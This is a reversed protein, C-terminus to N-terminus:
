RSRVDRTRAAAVGAGTQDYEQRKAADKLIEYANGVETFEDHLDLNKDPHTAMARERYAKKIDADSADRSVGLAKYPDLGGSSFGRRAGTFLPLVGFAGRSAQLSPACLAPSACRRVFRSFLAM